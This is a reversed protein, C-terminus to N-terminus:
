SSLGSPTPSSSDSEQRAGRDEDRTGLGRRGAGPGEGRTGGDPTALSEINAELVGAVRMRERVAAPPQDTSLRFHLCDLHDIDGLKEPPPECDSLDGLKALKECILQAKLGATPLSPDFKVEGVYLTRTRNNWLCSIL